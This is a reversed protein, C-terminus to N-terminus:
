ALREVVLFSRDDRNLIQTVAYRGEAWLLILYPMSELDAGFPDVESVHKPGHHSTHEIICVRTCRMWADLAKKPDYAHDLANTYIFDVADIWEQKVEHFDWCITNPFNTATTSIETGLVECELCKSFWAQEKGSRTGHCLGLRPRRNLKLAIVTALFRIDSERAWQLGIKKLNAREQIERYQAYTDYTHLKM